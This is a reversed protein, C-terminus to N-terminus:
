ARGRLQHGGVIAADGKGGRQGIRERVSEQLRAARGIARGGVDAVGEVEEILVRARGPQVLPLEIELAFEGSTKHHFESVLARAVAVQFIRRDSLARGLWYRLVLGVRSWVVM